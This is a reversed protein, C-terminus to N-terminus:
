FCLCFGQVKDKADKVPKFRQVLLPEISYGCDYDTIVRVNGHEARLKQLGKILDDLTNEKKDKKCGKIVSIRENDMMM